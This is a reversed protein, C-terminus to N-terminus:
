KTHDPHLAKSIFKILFLTQPAPCNMGYNITLIGTQEKWDVKTILADMDYTVMIKNLKASLEQLDNKELMHLGDKESLMVGVGVKILWSTLKVRM